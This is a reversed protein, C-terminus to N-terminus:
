TKRVLRRLVFPPSCVSKPEEEGAALVRWVITGGDSVADFDFHGVTTLEYPRPLFTKGFGIPMWSQRIWEEVTLQCRTNAM